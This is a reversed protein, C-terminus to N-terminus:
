LFHQGQAGKQLVKSEAISKHSQPVDLSVAAAELPLTEESSSGSEEQGGGISSAKSSPVPDTSAMAPLPLAMQADQHTEQTLVVGFAKTSKMAPLALGADSETSLSLTAPSDNSGAGHPAAFPDM